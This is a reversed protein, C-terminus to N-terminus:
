PHYKGTWSLVAIEIVAVRELQADEFAFTQGTQHAMLCEMARKKQAPDTLFRAKGNGIISRFRYSYTCAKEGTGTLAHDCDMEICVDPHQELAIIKRGQTASHIYLTLADDEFKYGFNMPVIYMGADDIMGVRCVKCTHLIDLLAARDTVERDSRRMM